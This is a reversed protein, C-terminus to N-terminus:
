SSALMKWNKAILKPEIDYELVVKILQQMDM